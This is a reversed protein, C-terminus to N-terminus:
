LNPVEANGPADRSIADRVLGPWPQAIGAAFVAVNNPCREGCDEPKKRWREDLREAINRRGDSVNSDTPFYIM